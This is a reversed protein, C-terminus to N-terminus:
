KGGPCWRECAKLHLITAAPTGPPLVSAIYERAAWISGDRTVAPMIADSRARPPPHQCVCGFPRHMHTGQLPRHRVHGCGRPLPAARVACRRREGGDANALLAAAADRRVDCGHEIPLAAQFLVLGPAPPMPCVSSFAHLCGVARHNGRHRGQPRGHAGRDQLRRHLCKPVADLHPWKPPM